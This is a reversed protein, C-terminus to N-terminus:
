YEGPKDKPILAMHPPATRYKGTLFLIALNKRWEPSCMESLEQKPIGKERGIKIAKGWREPEFFFKEFLKDEM